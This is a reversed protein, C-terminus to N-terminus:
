AIRTGSTSACSSTPARPSPRSAQLGRSELCGKHVGSFYDYLLNRSYADRPVEEIPEIPYQALCENLM